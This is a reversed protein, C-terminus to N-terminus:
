ESRLAQSPKVWTARRAPLYSAMLAVAGLVAAIAVYTEPDDPKVQYLLAALARTAALAGVAGILIGAGALAAGRRVVLKLVDASRAGLAIRIGIERTRQTVLYSMVGYIGIAALVLAIAAFVALLLASFRAKATSERIRGTMTKVDYVPVNRNLSQVQRRIADALALPNGATRAFVVLSSRPSQLYSVYVNPKPAEDMQGYRVDGVIGVIEASDTFGNAGIGIPKGIPNEGPWFKRAAADSILVVKPAGQRDATTLGRGRLLPIKLAKFYDPSVFLVGVPPEMGSPVPPRDRFWIITRNCGGALAHCNAMGASTVGPLGAVRQELESFFATSADHSAGHGAAADPLNIRVTLVNEPDVGSRTAILRGFSKIMLGAGTLLVVSLAVEAVVLISRGTLFGRPIAGAAKLADTLQARSGQWAPLLGFLLGTLLAVGFTFLLARPDLRISGLGLLTLGSLRHGFTFTDNAGPNSAALAKVGAYALAVSAIGGLLALLLSETLLQRVLRSRKAGVALRIAIERQRAAGRALLLNAVNVCAILLVFSVAGFLVLVSERLIPDLRTQDLPRAKAGWGNTAYAHDIQRGLVVVDSEARAVSIGAKLRAVMSWSHSMPQKLDDAYSLTHVPIWVDAPGTLGQFGAPLVGVITYPKLDLLISKGITKPDSGYRTEWLGRSIVAVFDREPVADEQPLFTRGAEANVGLVPFYGAGVIEGRLREAEGAGTLNFDVARYIATERYAKQLQRFTEYKPFSWVMDDAARQAPRTPSPPVTLSVKMLRGPDAFPLSRLLTAEVVSYIATNAGIGVALTFVAIATFAPQRVLTRVAYRLDQLVTEM